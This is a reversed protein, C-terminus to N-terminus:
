QTVVLTVTQAQTTSSGQGTGVIKFTYTGPATSSTTLGSCGTVGLSFAIATTFILLKGLRRRAMRREKRGLLFTLLGLPLVCMLTNGPGSRLSASAGAGSGLPDGTDIILSTTATGNPALSLQSNNFTCTAAPPLGLCGLVIKDSFSKVSGVTIVVTTHQRTVLTVSSTSAALTFQPAQGAAITTAASQSAAYFADGSDTAVVQESTQEFIVTITAVGTNDISASGLTLNGSTFTVRGSSAVPGQSKVVAILTIQQPNTADTSSGTVMISTSRLQVNETYASSTSAFNAGDGAYAAVIAHTGASMQTLTLTAHGTADLQATGLTFAGDAFTVNGGASAAGANTVTATFTISSLTEAPSSNSSLSLGTTQKVTLALPVSVSPSAKGDGAFNAVISHSGPRLTSLTLVAVGNGDLQASGISTGSDAFTVIGTASGGDSQVSATLSLPQGYTAPTTSGALTVQTSANVVTQTLQAGTAAFNSDGSYTVSITHTGVSLASTTFSATSSGILPVTALLARNDRFSATGTPMIPGSGSIQTTFTVNQGSASPNNSSTLNIASNRVVIESVAISTSSAHEIDGAYLATLTHTGLGPASTTFSASGNAALSVTGLVTSGDLFTVSGSANPSNSTVKAILTLPNGETVPNGSATLATASNAQRVTAATVASTVAANNADGSYRATMTHTGIALQSTAFSFSGSGSITDTGIVRTGDLLSMTGTPTIGPTSFVATFQATTGADVASAPGSLTLAPAALQVTQQLGTSTSGLYDADGGYAVTITHTGSTMQTTSFSASGNSGVAATGLEAGGSYFTVTGTPSGTASTAMASFTVPKGMLTTSSASSLTVQTSTQQVNESLPGSTSTAYNTNGAFTAVIVHQGVSLTSVALVAQGTTDISVTGLSTSGDTFTVNGTLSGDATAGSAMSVAATLHLTGRANVPNTDSGLTTVTAVRQITETLALSSSPADDTDGGYTVVLSHPGPSLTSITISATGSSSLPASGLVPSGPNSGDTFEVSGTPAPGNNSMVSASLTLSTGVTANSSSSSLVTVTAAQMIQESVKNSPGSFNASDGSYQALLLHTGVGLTQVSWTATGLSNLPMTGLVTAGDYFVVNGTPTGSQDQATLTLTVNSTVVAPSTSAALALAPQQKIVEAYSPSTSAADEDDGSYSASFTHSGLSLSPIQCTASGSGSVPVATCWASRGENFTVTGTLSTNASSIIAKLTVPQGLQGPNASAVLSTSTPEVSLVQGNLDYAPTVNPANSPWQISGTVNSGVQTPAFEVGMDCFVMSAMTSQGCTTTSPDLAAQNLVPSGLTLASNGANYMKEAFPTSVRGAKMANYTISLMSGSIERVRNNFMDSIWINGQADFVIEYPGYLTASSAPGADGSSGESSSGVLTTIIGPSGYVGRVRNNGADAIMLDGAPDFAVAAPKNLTASTAVGGDGSFSRQGATGAITSLAGRTDVLRVCENAFDAIAVAGDLRVAVGRPENLQREAAPGDGNYGQVGTGAITQIQRDSFTLVRITANGTDAIVLDGTPTLALGNPSTLTAQTALGHDGTYGSRGMQGAVTTILKTVADVRRVVNNGSDAIYLNGAGDLVLGSPGSLEAETAVGNDGSSGSTGNGAVTSILGTSADVRRVRNNTTDCLYLNGAGDVALGTPLFIPASTAAIGDGQYIWQGALGAVTNIEGPVLVPLSGEGIGSLPASAMVQTGDASLVVLAGHRVGPYRPTFIVSVTCSVGSVLAGAACTGPDAVSFDLNSIGSTLAGVAGASGTAVPVLTVTVPQSITSVSTIPFTPSASRTLDAAYSAELSLLFCLFVFLGEFRRNRGRASEVRWAKRQVM